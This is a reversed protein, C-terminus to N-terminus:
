WDLIIFSRRRKRHQQEQQEQEEEYREMRTKRHVLKKLFLRVIGPFGKWRQKKEHKIRVKELYNTVTDQIIQIPRTNIYFTKNHYSHTHIHLAPLREIEDRDCRYKYSDYERMSFTIRLDRCLDRLVKISDEYGEQKGLQKVVLTVSIPHLPETTQSRSENTKILTALNHKPQPISEM